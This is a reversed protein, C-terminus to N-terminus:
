FRFTPPSRIERVRVLSLQYIARAPPAVRVDARLMGKTRQRRRPANATPAATTADREDEEVGVEDTLAAGVRPVAFTLAALGDVLVDVVVGTSGVGEGPWVPVVDAGAAVVVVVVLAGVEV